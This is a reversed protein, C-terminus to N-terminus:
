GEPIEPCYLRFGAWEGFIRRSAEDNGFDDANCDRAKYKTHIYREAVTKASWNTAMETYELYM